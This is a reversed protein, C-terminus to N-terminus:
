EDPSYRRWMRSEHGAHAPRHPYKIGGSPVRTPPEEGYEAVHQPMVYEDGDSRYQNNGTDPEQHASQFTHNPQIAEKVEPARGERQLNLYRDGKKPHYPQMKGEGTQVRTERCLIITRSIRKRTNVQANARRNDKIKGPRKEGRETSTIIIRITQRLNM